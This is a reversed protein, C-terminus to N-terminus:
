GCPVGHFMPRIAEAFFRGKSPAHFFDHWLALSIGTYHYCPTFGAGRQFRVTLREADPEYSASSINSSEPSDFFLPLPAGFVGYEITLPDDEPATAAEQLAVKMARTIKKHTKSM